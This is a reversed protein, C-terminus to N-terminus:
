YKIFYINYILNLGNLFKKEAANNRLVDAWVLDSRIRFVRCRAPIIRRYNSEYEISVIEGVKVKSVHM